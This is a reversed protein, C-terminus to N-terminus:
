CREESSENLDGSNRIDDISIPHHECNNCTLLVESLKPM